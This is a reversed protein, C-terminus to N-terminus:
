KKSHVIEVKLRKSEAPPIPEEENAERKVCTTGMDPDPKTAVLGAEVWVQADHAPAMPPSSVVLRAHPDSPKIKASLGHRWRTPDCKTTDKTEAASHQQGADRGQSCAQQAAGGAASPLCIGTCLFPTFSEGLCTPTEATLSSLM